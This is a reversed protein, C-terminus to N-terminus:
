RAGGLLRRTARTTVALMATKTLLKTAKNQPLKEGVMRGDPTAVQWGDPRKLAVALVGAGPHDISSVTFARGGFLARKVLVTTM